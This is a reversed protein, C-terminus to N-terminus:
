GAKADENIEKSPVGGLRAPSDQSTRSRYGAGNDWRRPDHAQAHDVERRHSLEREDNDLQKTIAQMDRRYRADAAAEVRKRGIRLWDFRGAFYMFAMGALALVIGLWM